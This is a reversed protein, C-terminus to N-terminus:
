ARRLRIDRAELGPHAPLHGPVGDGVAEVHVETDIFPMAVVHEEAVVLPDEAGVEDIVSAILGHPGGPAVEIDRREATLLSPLVRWLTVGLGRGILPPVPVVV